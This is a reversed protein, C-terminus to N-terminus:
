NIETITMLSLSFTHATYVDRWTNLHGTEQPWSPPLRNPTISIPQQRTYNQTQTSLLVHCTVYLTYVSLWTSIIQTNEVNNNRNLIQQWVTSRQCWITFNVHFLNKRSPFLLNQANTGSSPLLFFGLHFDNDNILASLPEPEAAQTEQCFRRLSVREM